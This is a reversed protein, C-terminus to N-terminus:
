DLKNNNIGTCVATMVMTLVNWSPDFAAKVADEFTEHQIRDRYNGCTLIWGKGEFHVAKLPTEDIAKVEILPSSVSSNEQITGKSQSRKKSTSM